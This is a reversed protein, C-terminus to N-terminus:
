WIFTTWIQGPTHVPGCSRPANPPLAGLIKKHGSFYTKFM